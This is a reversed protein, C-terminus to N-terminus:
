EAAQLIFTRRASFESVFDQAAKETQFEWVIQVGNVGSVLVVKFRKGDAPKQYQIQLGDDIRFAYVKQTTAISVWTRKHLTNLYVVGHIWTDWLVQFRGRKAKFVIIGPLPACNVPRHHHPNPEKKRTLSATTPSKHNVGLPAQALSTKVIKEKPAANGHTSVEGQSALASKAGTGSTGSKIGRKLVGKEVIQDYLVEYIRKGFMSLIGCTTVVFVVVSHMMDLDKRVPLIELIGAGVGFYLFLSILAPSDNYIPDANRFLYALIPLTLHLLVTSATLLQTSVDPKLYCTRFTYPSQTQLALTPTTSVSLYVLLACQLLIVGAIGVRTMLTLFKGDIRTKSTLVVHMRLNKASVPTIAVSYGGILLWMRADCSSTSIPGLYFIISTYLMVCGVLTVLSEPVSTMKIPRENQYKLLFAVTITVFVLGIVALSLITAGNTTSLDNVVPILVVVPPGDPPPTTTGSNFIPDFLRTYAGTIKNIEGFPPQTGTEWFSRNLSLFITKAAVDGNADLRMPNLLTGNFGTDAFQTYNLYNQLQRKALMTPTFNPNSQLLKHLGYLMTGACDFPGANSWTFRQIQYKLPNASYLRNWTNTLSILNPDTKPVSDPLPYVMGVIKDLRPDPGSGSYDPPYAPQMSIWVHDPSLLGQQSATDVLNYSASWAQACLVIYRADVRKFEQLISLYEPNAVNGHYSRYSLIIIHNAFFMHKIDLCAGASEIDDTDYVLAVRKVNWINFLTVLDQGWKNAFTVRFFYPYNGKDSLSPLNQVGGCFPIQNQSLVGGLLQTSYDATDGVVAVADTQQVIQLASIVSGGVGDGTTHANDWGQVRVINVMTDPLIASNNNVLQVALEAGSDM